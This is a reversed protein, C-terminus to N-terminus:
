STNEESYAIIFGSLLSIIIQMLRDNQYQFSVIMMIFGFFECIPEPIKIYLIKPIKSSLYCGIIAFFIYIFLSILFNIM